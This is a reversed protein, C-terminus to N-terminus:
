SRKYGCLCLYVPKSIRKRGKKEVLFDYLTKYMIRCSRKADDVTNEQVDKWILPCQDKNNMSVAKYDM